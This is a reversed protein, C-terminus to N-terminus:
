ICVGDPNALKTLGSINVCRRDRRFFNYDQAEQRQVSSKHFEFTPIIVNCTGVPPFFSPVIVTYIVRGLETDM